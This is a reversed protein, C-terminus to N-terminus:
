SILLLVPEAPRGKERVITVWTRIIFEGPSIITIIHAIRTREGLWFVEWLVFTQIVIYQYRM